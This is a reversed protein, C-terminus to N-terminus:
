GRRQRPLLVSLLAIALGFGAAVLFVLDYGSALAAPSHGGDQTRTRASAITALVALGISGGV